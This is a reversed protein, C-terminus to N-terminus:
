KLFVSFKASSSFGTLYYFDTCLSIEFFKKSYALNVGMRALSFSPVVSWSGKKFLLFFEADLFGPLTKRIAISFLIEKNLKYIGVFCLKTPITERGIIAYKLRFPNVAQIGVWASTFLQTYLSFDISLSHMPEYNKAHHMLYHFQMGVAFKKKFTRSYAMSTKLEGFRSYGDHAIQFHFGNDRFPLICDLRKKSLEVLFFDNRFHLSVISNNLLSATAFNDPLIYRHCFDEVQNGKPINDQSYLIFPMVLCVMYLFGFRYNSM